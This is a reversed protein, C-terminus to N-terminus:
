SLCFMIDFTGDDDEVFITTENLDGLSVADAMGGVLELSAAYSELAELGVEDDSLPIDFFISTLTTNASIIQIEDIGNASRM